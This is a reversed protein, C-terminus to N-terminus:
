REEKPDGPSLLALLEQPREILAKAGHSQLEERERYGWLAGVPFMGAHVATQMDTGTDGLYLIHSAPIALTDAIHRAGTPDPKNPITSCAGQVIHFTWTRLLEAVCKKTFDDPKNSLVALPLDRATLEDLMGPVGAYPKTKKNWHVKYTERFAKSCAEITARQKNQSPVARTMLMHVGEGVFTRYDDTNHPPFSHEALVKNAADAIDELTDLLTGDLDFLVAKFHMRM